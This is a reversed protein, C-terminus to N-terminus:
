IPRFTEVRIVTHYLENFDKVTLGYSFVHQLYRQLREFPDTERLHKLFSSKLKTRGERAELRKRDNEHKLQLLINRLVSGPLGQGISRRIQAPTYRPEQSQIGAFPTVLAVVPIQTTMDLTSDLTKIFLRDNALSLGIKLHRRRLQHEDMWEVDIWLSYGDRETEKQSKLNTWLHRLSPISIPTFENDGIGIGQMRNGPLLSSRGKEMEMVTKCYEWVALAHLITSKGSNNADALLSVNPSFHVSHNCIGKFRHLEVSTIYM